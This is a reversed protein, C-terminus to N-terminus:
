GVRIIGHKILTKIENMMTLDIVKGYEVQEWTTYGYKQAFTKWLKLRESPAILTDIERGNPKIENHPNICTIADIIAFKDKYKDARLHNLYWWDIGGDVNEPEYVQMFEDLKDKRFLPTGMEIFNTFRLLYMKKSVTIPHFNKGLPEYSPQLAWLDHQARIKFLASLKYADIIIDDDLVMIAEYRELLEPWTQYVYHLNPFKGGKRANYYTAVDKYKEPTDGYYTVWLDFEQKGTLWTHLNSNDGASTFIIYNKNIQDPKTVAIM